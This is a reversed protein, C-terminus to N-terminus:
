TVPFWSIVCVCVSFSSWTPQPSQHLCMLLLGSIWGMPPKALKQHYTYSSPTYPYRQLLPNQPQLRWSSAATTSVNQVCYYYDGTGWCEYKAWPFAKSNGHTQNLLMRPIRSIAIDIICIWEPNWRNGVTHTKTELKCVGVHDPCFKKKESSKRRPSESM